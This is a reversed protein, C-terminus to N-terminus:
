RSSVEASAGEPPPDSSTLAATMTVTQRAQAAATAIATNTNRPLFGGTGSSSQFALMREKRQRVLARERGSQVAALARRFLGGTRDLFNEETWGHFRFYAALKNLLAQQKRFYSRASCTLKMGGFRESLERKRRFYKYELLYQEEETLSRLASSVLARLSSVAMRARIEKVVDLATEGTSRPDKYSLAAKNFVAASVAEELEGMKPYAYLIVKVFDNDM